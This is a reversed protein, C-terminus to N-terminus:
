NPFPLSFFIGIIQIKLPIGFHRYVCGFVHNPELSLSRALQPSVSFISKGPFVVNETRTEKVRDRVGIWGFNQSYHWNGIKGTGPTAIGKRTKRFIVEVTDHKKVMKPHYIERALTSGATEDGSVSQVRRCLPSSIPDICGWWQYLTKCIKM